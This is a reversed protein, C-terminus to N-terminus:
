SAKRHPPWRRDLRFSDPYVGGPAGMYVTEKGNAKKTFPRDLWTVSLSGQMRARVLYRSGHPDIWTEGARPEFFGAPRTRPEPRPQGCETCAGYVARSSETCCIM